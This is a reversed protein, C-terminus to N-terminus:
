RPADTMSYFTQAALHPRPHEDYDYADALKLSSALVQRFFQRPPTEPTAIRWLSCGPERFALYAEQTSSVEWPAHISERWSIDPAFIRTAVRLSFSLPVIHLHAHDIGCGFTTGCEAAGHEFLTPPGYRHAVVSTTWEILANLESTFKTERLSWIHVRPVILLWGPVLPGKTPVVVFHPTETIPTDWPEQFAGGGSAGYRVCFRCQKM